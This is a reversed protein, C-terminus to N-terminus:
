EGGLVQSLHEGPREGNGASRAVGPTWIVMARAGVPFDAVGASGRGAADEQAHGFIKGMTRMAKFDVVVAGLTPVIKERWVFLYLDEGLKLYHCRDTDALGKESGLLCHWTYFHENLYVHEYKETPSYTYEVRRGILDATCGHRPTREDFPRDVSAAAFEAAVATLEDGRAIRAALSEGIDATEPLRATLSTAISQGLDLVLSVATPPTAAAVFDVFYIGPRVEFAFYDAEGMPSCAGGPAAGTSWALRSGTPFAYEVATGDEFHLVHASGALAATRPPTHNDPGFAEALEGVSIWRVQDTM